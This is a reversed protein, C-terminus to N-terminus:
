RKRLLGELKEKLEPTIGKMSDVQLFRKDHGHQALWTVEHPILEGDIWYFNDGHPEIVEVKSVDFLHVPVSDEPLALHDNLYFADRPSRDTLWRVDFHSLAWNVFPKAYPVVEGHLFREPTHSPVVVPGDIGIFLKPKATM